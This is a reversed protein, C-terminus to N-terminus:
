NSCCLGLISGTSRGAAVLFAFKDLYAGVFSECGRHVENIMCQFTALASHLGFPMVLFEFLGFPTAFATMERSDVAMPIQLYGKSLDLTSIINAPGIKEFVEKIRPMPYADFKAVENLRCYDVCFCVIGDRKPVLVIPSARPSVSTKIVGGDLM